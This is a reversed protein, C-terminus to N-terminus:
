ATAKSYQTVALTFVVVAFALLVTVPEAIDALGAGKLLVARMITTFHTLPNLQALWRAATPMSRVPTLLGSMLIFVMMIFFTIFMAQQQTEVLTSIWLGLSVTVFLYIAAAGFVLALSGTIPVHFGWRAIALGMALEAQGIIWFPILKAAIFTGKTIPTVNLQELTGIEKERAINMASILTSILTVLIVLIGPVMYYSYRLEPNYWGHVRVDIRGRGPRPATDAAADPIPHLRLSAAYRAIIERAYGQAVGATAGDVADFILQVPAAGTRVLDREFDHPVHVALTVDGRELAAAAVSAAPVTTGDFRGSAMLHSVLGRSTETRDDDVVAMRVRRVEFTAANGLLILQVLPIVLIQLMMTRDRRIQLLEKRILARLMRM